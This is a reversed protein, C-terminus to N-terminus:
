PNSEGALGGKMRFAPTRVVGLIFASLRNEATGAARAIERVAPMDYHELRRGLAYAMLNEVFTRVIPLPRRLLAERLDAASGIPTGDYLEGSADIRSGNDWLRRAGTVDYRELALGIPDMMRHCSACAPSARHRELRERVSLLRGDEAVVTDELDPVDPPPPPPPSGLLVEMAWKGRLVPSTRDAYSTLALVSGHGLLGRRPDAPPYTVRRFGSGVVGPLGYHRALRENVFTWDADLLELVDRDERLLHLFFLETERQMAWKLQEDFDPYVRVDPQLAELDPLRLWQAAFRTALAEARPDALMRRVQGELVDPESLRQEGALALLEADPASSWLFFSLRSALDHDAIPFSATSPVDVPPEEFRFVFHPSALMGEIAMRVGAEFGGEEEGADYLAMLGEHNAPTLSRRYAAAGLGGIIESACDRAPLTRRPLEPGASSGVRGGPRAEESASPRCTFIRARSPTESVGTVAQPGRIALDRLHPLSTFGYANAISTSALSWDHPSILDQVPGDFQPVFVASVRHPGATVHIPDTWLNVGNPDSVHMWRDLEFVAAREGDIAIEVQERRETTHLAARGSGFLEGTTEHHFSVRFRYEGDAPFTHTVAVGGRSGYPAGEVQERQSVWRPVKYAAEVAAAAPDGVALRSIESAARLYGNMLTPSLMQVDAINDFNASKTDLPLYDGADVDLALLDRISREYEARNLRQFGRRGPNPNAEAAADLRTELEEALGILASEDPRRVGAPPMLGARLKRVMHEAVDAQEVAGAVEFDALSLNGSRLRENHCRRCTRDVVAQAAVTTVPAQPAGTVGPPRGAEATAPAQAHVTGAASVAVLAPVVIGVAVRMRKLMSM